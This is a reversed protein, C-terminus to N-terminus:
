SGTTTNPSTIETINKYNVTRGDKLTLYLEGGSNVVGAVVGSVETQILVKAGKADEGMMGVTYKGDPVTTGASNKGDWTYSYTGAKRAGLTESRVINGESDYVNVIINNVAESMGYTISSISSGDKTVTYGKAKISKGIFNTASYLDKESNADVLSKIGKNINTLQELSSFQALQSTMEKDDMPNMPDQHTLQAILIKMFTDQDMSTKHTVENSAAQQAAAGGLLSSAASYYETSM